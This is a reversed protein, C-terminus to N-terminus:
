QLSPIARVLGGHHIQFSWSSDFLAERAASQDLSHTEFNASNPTLSAVAKGPEAFGYKPASTCLDLSFYASLSCNQKDM